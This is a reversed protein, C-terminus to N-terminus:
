AGEVFLDLEKSKEEKAKTVKEISTQTDRVHESLEQLRKLLCGSEQKIQEVHRQYVVQLREFSHSKHEEGFMACDSCIATRCTNCYYNLPTNDHQLCVEKKPKM